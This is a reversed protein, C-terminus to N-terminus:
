LPTSALKRFAIECDSIQKNAFKMNSQLGMREEDRVKKMRMKQALKEQLEKIKMELESIEKEEVCKEGICKEFEEEVKKLKIMHQSAKSKLSLLKNLRGRIAGVNFGHTELDTLIELSNNIVDVPDTMQLTSLTEVLNGFTVVHAIALGERHDAKIKKLPAFHPRQQPTRYFELASIAAWMPSMKTFPWNQQYDDPDPGPNTVTPQSLPEDQHDPKPGPNTLTPQSPQKDNHNPRSSFSRKLGALQSLPPDDHDVTIEPEGI